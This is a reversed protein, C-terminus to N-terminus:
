ETEVDHKEQTKDIMLILTEEDHYTDDTEGIQLRSLTDNTLPKIRAIHVLDFDLEM